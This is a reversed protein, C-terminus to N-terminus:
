FPTMEKSLSDAGWHVSNNDKFSDETFFNDYQNQDLM